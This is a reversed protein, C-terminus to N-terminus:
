YGVGYGYHNYVHKFNDLDIYAVSFHRKYRKSRDIENKPFNIFLQRHLLSYLHDTYASIMNRKQFM